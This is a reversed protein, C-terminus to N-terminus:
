LMFLNNPGDWAQHDDERKEKLYNAADLALEAKWIFVVDSLVKGLKFKWFPEVEHRDNVDVMLLLLLAENSLPLYAAAKLPFLVQLMYVIHARNLDWAHESIADGIAVVVCDHVAAIVHM